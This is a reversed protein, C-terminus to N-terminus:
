RGRVNSVNVDEVVVKKKRLLDFSYLSEPLLDPNFHPEILYQICLIEVFTFFVEWSKKKAESV